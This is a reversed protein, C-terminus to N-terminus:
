AIYVIILQLIHWSQDIYMWRNNMKPPLTFKFKYKDMAYHGILLFLVKWLRLLGVYELAICVCATWIMSHTFMWYWFKGKNLAMWQSQLAVDGIYHAFILWIFAIM